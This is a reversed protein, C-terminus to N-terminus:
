HLSTQMKEILRLRLEASEHFLIFGIYHCDEKALGFRILSAPEIDSELLASVLRKKAEGGYFRLSVYLCKEDEVKVLEVDEKADCYLKRFLFYLKKLREPHVAARLEVPTLAYFFDELLLDGKDGSKEILERFSHFIEMQKSIMGGNYDRVDGFLSMLYSVAYQRARYLDVSFDDRLFEEPSLSIRVVSAEKRVHRIGDGICKVKELRVEGGPCERLLSEMSPEGVELPRVTIASFSLLRDTQEDFIIAIQPMDEKSHIEESLNVIYKMVEEDNRPKFLPRVLSEIGGHLEQLLENRLRFRQLSTFSHQDERELEVFLGMEGEDKKELVFYSEDVTVVGPVLRLVAKLLHREEFVENKKLFNLGIFCGLNIKEGFPTQVRVPLVKLYLHRKTKQKEREKSVRSLLYYTNSVVRALFRSSRLNRYEEPVSVLFKQMALYFDYDFLSPFRHLLTTVREQIIVSKEDSSLGKLELIRRAHYISQVGLYVEREISPLSHRIQSLTERNSVYVVVEFALYDTQDLEFFRFRMSFFSIIDLRIGPVLWKSFMEFVFKPLDARHPAILSITLESPLNQVKSTTLLPLQKLEELGIEDTPFLRHIIRQTIQREYSFKEESLPIFLKNQTLKKM